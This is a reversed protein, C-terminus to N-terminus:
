VPLQTAPILPPACALFKLAGPDPYDLWLLKGLRLTFTAPTQM